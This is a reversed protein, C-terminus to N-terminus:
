LEVAEVQIRQAFNVDEINNLISRPIVDIRKGFLKELEYSFGGLGLMSAQEDMDVLFDLDSEPTSEGRAISGFVCVRTIGYKHAIQYIQQNKRKIELLDM